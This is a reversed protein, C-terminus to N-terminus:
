RKKIMMIGDRVPLLLNEVRQDDMVMKNFKEIVTTDYDKLGKGVKGSWLVNDALIIGGTTVRDIVLNYHEIYDGKGADIYILDFPGNIRPIVEKADGTFPKIRQRLGAENFYKQSIYSLEPNVEITYLTGNPSLGRALCIAGYGTFTGIELITDPRMWTSLWTLLQGQLRGTLMQPSLTKLHTERELRYLVEDPPTTFRECLKTLERLDKM